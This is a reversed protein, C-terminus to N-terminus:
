DIEAVADVDTKVMVSYFTNWYGREFVHTQSIPGNTPTGPFIWTSKSETYTGEVKRGDASQFTVTWSKPMQAFSTHILTVWQGAPCDIKKPGFM